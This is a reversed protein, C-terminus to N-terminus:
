PSGDAIQRAVGRVTDQAISPWRGGHDIEGSAVDVAVLKPRQLAAVDHRANHRALVSFNPSDDPGISVGAEEVSCQGRRAGLGYGAIGRSMMSHTHIQHM